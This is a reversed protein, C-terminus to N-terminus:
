SETESDMESEPVAEASVTYDGPWANVDLKNVVFVESTGPPVEYPIPQPENSEDVAHPISNMLKHEGLTVNYYYIDSSQGSGSKDGSPTSTGSGIIFEEIEGSPTESEFSENVFSMDGLDKSFEGNSDGPEDGDYANFNFYWDGDAKVLVWDPAKHSDGGRHQDTVSYDVSVTTSDSYEVSLQSVNFKIGGSITSEDYQTDVNVAPLGQDENYEVETSVEGDGSHGSVSGDHVYGTVNELLKAEYSALFGTHFGEVNGTQHTDDESEKTFTQNSQFYVPVYEERNNVLATSDIVEDGATFTEGQINSLNTSREGNTNEADGFIVAQDVDATGSVTGFSTLLAASGGGILLLGALALVSVSRGLLEVEHELTNKLKDKM